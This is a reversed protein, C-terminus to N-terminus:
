REYFLERRIQKRCPTINVQNSFGALIVHQCCHPTSETLIWEPMPPNHQARESIARSATVLLFNTWQYLYCTIVADLAASPPSVVPPGGYHVVLSSGGIEHNMTRRVNLFKGSLKEDESGLTNAPIVCHHESMHRMTCPTCLLFIVTGAFPEVRVKQDTIFRAVAPYGSSVFLSSASLGTVIDAGTPGM